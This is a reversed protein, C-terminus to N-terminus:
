DADSSFEMHQTDGLKLKCDVEVVTGGGHDAAAAALAFWGLVGGDGGLVKWLKAEGEGLCGEGMDTDRMGKSKKGSYKVNMQLVALGGDQKKVHGYSWDFLFVLQLDPHFFGMMNM